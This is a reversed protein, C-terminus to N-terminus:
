SGATRQIAGGAWNGTLKGRDTTVPEVVPEDAFRVSRTGIRFAGGDMVIDNDELQLLGQSIYLGLNKKLLNMFDELKTPKALMGSSGAELFLLRDAELINGTLNFILMPPRNEEMFEARIKRVAEHGLSAGDGQQIDHIWKDNKFYAQRLKANAINDSGTFLLLFSPPM